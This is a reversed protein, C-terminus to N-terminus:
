KSDEMTGALPELLEPVESVIREIDKARFKKDGFSLWGGAEKLRRHRLLLESLGSYQKFGTDFYFKMKAKRFPAAVENKIAETEIEIGTVVDYQTDVIKGKTRMMLRIAAHYKIARGGPSEKTTYGMFNFSMKLHNIGLLTVRKRSLEGLTARFAATLTRARSGKEAPIGDDSVAEELEDARSTAAISDLVIITPTKKNATQAVRGIIRIADPLDKVLKYGLKSWDVGLMEAFKKDTKAESDLLIAAGGARQFAAIVVYGLASKATAPDGVVEIFRGRPIGEGIILDIAPIGTRVWETEEFDDLTAILAEFSAPAASASRRARGVSSTRRPQKKKSRGVM